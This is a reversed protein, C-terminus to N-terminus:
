ELVLNSVHNGVVQTAHSKRLDNLPETFILRFRCLMSSIYQMYHLVQDFHPINRYYYVVM